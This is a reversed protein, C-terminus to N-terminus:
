GRKFIEPIVIDLNKKTNESFGKKDREKKYYDYTNENFKISMAEWDLLMEAIYIPEMDRSNGNEDIWYQPHHPNNRYHHIWAKDFAEKDKVENSCTHFYNRYPEFEEESYKSQDHANVNIALLTPSVNLKECLVEAYKTYALKVNAIHEEIYALYEKEKLIREDM